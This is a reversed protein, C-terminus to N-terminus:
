MRQHQDTRCQWGTLGGSSVPVSPWPVSLDRSQNRLAPGFLLGSALLTVGLALVLPAVTPRPLEVSDHSADTHPDTTM